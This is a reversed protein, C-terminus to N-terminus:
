RSRPAPLSRCRPCSTQLAAAVVDQLFSFNNIYFPNAVNSTLSGDLATNRTQTKNWYQEALPDQKISMGVNGSFQGNYVAQVAMNQSLERQIGASWRQLRPHKYNLNGYSYSTGATMM